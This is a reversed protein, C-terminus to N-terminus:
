LCYPSAIWEHLIAVDMLPLYDFGNNLDSAVQEIVAHNVGQNAVMHFYWAFPYGAQRDFIRLQTGLEAGQSDIASPQLEGEVPHAPFPTATFMREGHHNIHERLGLAWMNSFHAARAASSAEWEQMFRQAPLLVHQSERADYQRGMAVLFDAIRTIRRFNYAPGSVLSQQSNQTGTQTMPELLDMMDDCPRDPDILPYHLYEVLQEVELQVFDSAREGTQAALYLTCGRIQTIQYAFCEPQEYLISVDGDCIDLLWDEVSHAIRRGGSDILGGPRYWGRRERVLNFQLGTQQNLAQLLPTHTAEVVSSECVRDLAERDLDSESTQLMPM